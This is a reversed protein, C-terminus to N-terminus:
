YRGKNKDWWTVIEESTPSRGGHEARYGRIFATLVDSPVDFEPLDTRPIEKEGGFVYGKLGGQPKRISGTAFRMAENLQSQTPQQGEKVHGRLWTEMINYVKRKRDANQKGDLNMEPTAYMSITSSIAGRFAVEQQPKARIAAAKQQLAAYEAPTVQPKILRLDQQLFKQPEETAMVDLAIALDSNAKPASGALVAKKNADAMNRLQLRRDPSLREFNPIQSVDTFNDGLADAAGLAQEFEDNERRGQLMEDRKVREDIRQRARELREPTWGERKARGELDTYVATLDWKREASGAAAKDGTKKQFKAVYNRTEAPLYAVWNEPEGAKRARAIAGNVGTGKSASGPGANYAAAAKIPDGGFRRLMDKYYAQGLARNYAEDKHFREADWALGALRAAEPGTSPLVQMVGIAGASSRLPEGSATFQKGGSENSEIAKLQTYLDSAVGPTPAEDPGDTPAAGLAVLADDEAQRFQIAPQLKAEIAQVDNYTMDDRYKDLLGIAGDIDDDTLRGTIVANHVSSVFKQEEDDLREESWGLRDARSNVEALGGAINDAYREPDSYLRVADERFGALRADTQRDLEVNLQSISHKAVDVLYGDFQNDLQATLMNRQRENGVQSLAKERIERLREEVEPRTNSADLGQRNFYPDDGTWMLDRAEDTAGVMYKKVAATDEVARVADWNEAIQSLASGSQELARGVFNRSEAYRFRAQPEDQVQVLRGPTVPVSVM